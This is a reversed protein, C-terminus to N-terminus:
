LLLSYLLTIIGEEVREWGTKREGKITTLKGKDDLEFPTKVGDIEM